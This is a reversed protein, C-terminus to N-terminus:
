ASSPMRSKQRDRPSPSTYLLCTYIYVIHEATQELEVDASGILDIRTLRYLHVQQYGLPVWNEICAYHKFGTRVGGCIDKTDLADYM